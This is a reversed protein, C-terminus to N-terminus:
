TTNAGALLAHNMDEVMNHPLQQSRGRHCTGGPEMNSIGTQSNKQKHNEWTLKVNHVTHPDQRLNEEGQNEELGM